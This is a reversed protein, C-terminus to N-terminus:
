EKDEIDNVEASEDIGEVEEVDTEISSQSQQIEEPM